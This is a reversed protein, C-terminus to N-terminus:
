SFKIAILGIPNRSKNLSAISGLLQWIFVHETSQSFLSIIQWDKEKM